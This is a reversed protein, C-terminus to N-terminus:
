LKLELCKLELLYDPKVNPICASIYTYWVLTSKKQIIDVLHRVLQCIETFNESTFNWLIGSQLEWNTTHPCVSLTICIHVHKGSWQSLLFIFASDLFFCSWFFNTNKAASWCVCLLTCFDVLLTVSIFFIYVYLNLHFSVKYLSPILNLLLCEERM